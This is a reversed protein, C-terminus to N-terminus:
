TEKCKQTGNRKKSHDIIAGDKLENSGVQIGKLHMGTIDGYVVNLIAACSNDPVEFTIKM